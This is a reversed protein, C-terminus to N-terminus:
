LGSMYKISEMLEDDSCDSCTGRAPMGPPIGAIASDTLEEWSDNWAALREGWADADNTLPAGLVGNAHCSTCFQQYVQQGSRADAVDGGNSAPTAAVEDACPDGLLCVNGFPKIREAIAQDVSSAFATGAVLALMTASAVLFKKVITM